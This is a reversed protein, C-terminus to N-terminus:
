ESDSGELLKPCAPPAPRKSTRADLWSQSHVTVDSEGQITTLDPADALPVAGTCNSTAAVVPAGRVPVMVAAPKFNLTAWDAAHANAIEGSLADIGDAPPLPRTVTDVPSPHAHVAALLTGHIWIASPADRLPM